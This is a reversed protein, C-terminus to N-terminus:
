AKRRSEKGAPPWKSPGDWPLADAWLDELAVEPGGLMWDGADDKHLGHTLYETALSLECDPCVIYRLQVRQDKRFLTLYVNHAEGKYPQFCRQCPSFPM